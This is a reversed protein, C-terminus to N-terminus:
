ICGSKLWLRDIVTLAAVRIYVKVMNEVKFIRSSCSEFLNPIWNRRIQKYFCGNMIEGRLWNCFILTKFHSTKKRHFDNGNCSKIDTNM